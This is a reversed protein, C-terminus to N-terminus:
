EIKELNVDNRISELLIASEQNSCSQGYICLTMTEFTGRIIIHKTIIQQYFPFISDSPIDSSTADISNTSTISVNM